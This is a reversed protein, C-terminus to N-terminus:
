CCLSHVPACSPVGAFLSVAIAQVVLQCLGAYCVACQNPTIATIAVQTYSSRAVEAGMPRACCCPASRRCCPLVALAGCPWSPRRWTTTPATRSRPAARWSRAIEKGKPTACYCPAGAAPSCPWRVARGAQGGGRQPLLRARGRRRGRRRETGRARERVGGDDGPVGPQAM